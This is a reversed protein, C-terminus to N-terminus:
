PTGMVLVEGIVVVLDRGFQLRDQITPIRGLKPHRSIRQEMLFAPLGFDRALGQVVTMRGPRGETTTRPATSLPRTAAFMTRATLLEFFRNALPGETQPSGQIYEATETNHLTLFLNIRNGAELWRRIAGHQAAIEPMKEPDIEDWNRNLDYGHRNFRVGGRAVGDPDCLPFIKWLAKERLDRGAADDDTLALAAGEGAWSVPSEWSHQRVMLWAVPKGPAAEGMTWLYLNRGEVSRGIVEERFGARRRLRIRLDDLHANTYPPVRAIWFRSRKPRIRLRLRPESKDYEVTSIAEWERQNYSIVPPTRADIPGLNPTYNYEGPLGVLDILLEERGANDFRVYFWSAQRNRGDQDTEGPLHLRWHRPGSQEARELRGGEFNWSIEAGSCAAAFWLLWLIRM